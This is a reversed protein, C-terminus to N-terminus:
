DEKKCGPCDGGISVVKTSKERRMEAHLSPYFTKLMDQFQPHEKCRPCTVSMPVDTASYEDHAHLALHPRDPECAISFEGRHGAMPGKGMVQFHVDNLPLVAHGGFAGCKPCRPEDGEFEHGRPVHGCKPNYCRFRM